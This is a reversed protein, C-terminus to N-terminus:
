ADRRRLALYGGLLIVANWALMVLLGTGPGLASEEDPVVEVMRMAAQDPLFQAVPQLASVNNLMPSVFFFLPILVVLSPVSGRLIAAVGMALSCVLTLYLCAGTVARLVGPETITTGHPGLASQALFFSLCVTVVSVVFAALTGSLWKALYFAGRRPVAALSPLITGSAYESTVLLVGYALLVIQGFGLGIFGSYVPDFNRQEAIPMRDFTNGVAFAFAVNAGVTIVFTALLLWPTSRLTRAKTWESRLVAGSHTLSM